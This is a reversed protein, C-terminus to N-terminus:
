ASWDGPIFTMYSNPDGTVSIQTGQVDILLDIGADFDGPTGGLDLAIIHRDAPSNATDDLHILAVKAGGDFQSDVKAIVDYEEESSYNNVVEATGSGYKTSSNYFDMLPKSLAVKASSGFNSIVHTGDDAGLFVVDASAADVTYKGTDEATTVSTLNGIGKEAISKVWSSYATMAGNSTTSSYSSTVDGILVATADIVTDDGIFMDTANDYIVNSATAGNDDIGDIYVWKAHGAVNDPGAVAFQLIDYADAATVKGDLNFDSAIIESQKYINNDPDISSDRSVRLAGLADEAGIADSSLRDNMYWGEGLAVVESGDAIAGLQVWGDTLHANGDEQHRSITRENSDVYTAGNEASQQAAQFKITSGVYASFEALIYRGEADTALTGTDLQPLKLDNLEFVLKDSTSLDTMVDKTNLIRDLFEHGTYDDDIVAVSDSVDTDDLGVYSLTETRVLSLTEAGGINNEPDVLWTISKDFIKAGTITIKHDPNIIVSGDSMSEKDQIFTPIPVNMVLQYQIIDGNKMVPVISLGDNTSLDTKMIEVDDISTGNENKLKLTLDHPAFSFNYNSLSQEEPTANATVDYANYVTYQATQLKLDNSALSNTKELMFTAVVDGANFNMGADDFMAFSIGTDGVESFFTAPEFSGDEPIESYEIAKPSASATKFQGWFDYEPAVGGNNGWTVNFHMSTLTAGEGVEGGVLKVGYTIINDYRADPIQVIDFIAQNPSHLYNSSDATSADLYGVTTLGTATNMDGLNAYIDVKALTGLSFKGDKTYVEYADYKSSTSNLILAYDGILKNDDSDTINDGDEINVIKVALKGSANVNSTLIAADKAEDNAYLVTAKEPDTSVTYGIHQNGTVLHAKYGDTNTGVLVYLGDADVGSAKKMSYITTDVDLTASTIESEHDGQDYSGGNDGGNDTIISNQPQPFAAALAQWGEYNTEVGQDNVITIIEINEAECVILNEQKSKIAGSTNTSSTAYVTSTDSLSIILRDNGLGGDIVAQNGSIKILDDGDNLEVHAKWTVEADVVDDGITTVLNEIETVDSLVFNCESV